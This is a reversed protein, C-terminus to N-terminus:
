VTFTLNFAIPPGIGPLSGSCAVQGSSNLFSQTQMFTAISGAISGLPRFGVPLVTIFPNGDATRQVSARFHVVDGIKRYQLYGGPALAWGAGLTANIWGTDGGEALIVWPRWIGGYKHRVAMQAVNQHYTVAMQAQNNAYWYSMIYWYSTTPGNNHSTLIVSDTTTNPDQELPLVVVSSMQSHWKSREAATVGLPVFTSWTDGVQGVRILSQSNDQYAAYIQFTHAPDAFARVTLVTGPSWTADNVPSTTIGVPYSDPTSGFSPYNTLVNIDETAGGLTKFPGWGVHTIWLRYQLTDGSGKDHPSFIQFCGSGNVDGYHVNTISGWDPFGNTPNSQGTTIGWPYENPSDTELPYYDLVNVQRSTVEVDGNADPTAGNVSFVARGGGGSPKANIENIAAVLSAKATTSLTSLDGTTQTLLKKAIALTVADM